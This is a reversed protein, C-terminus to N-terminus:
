KWGVGLVGEKWSNLGGIDEYAIRPVTRAQAAYGKENIKMTTDENVIVADAMPQYATVVLNM